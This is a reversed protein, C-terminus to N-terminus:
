PEKGFDILEKVGFALGITTGISKIKNEIASLGSDIPQSNISTDIRISGDYNGAM